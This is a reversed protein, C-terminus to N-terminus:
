RAATSCTAEATSTSCTWTASGHADLVGGLWLIWHPLEWLSRQMHRLGPHASHYQIDFHRWFGQREPVPVTAMPTHVFAIRM